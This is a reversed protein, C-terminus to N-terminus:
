QHVVQEKSAVSDEQSDLKGTTFEDLEKNSKEKVASVAILSIVATLIIYIAVPIYSNDFQVLLATAVLPATGGAVAAGIQYGLSVRHLTGECRFNRLVDDRTCSNYSGM